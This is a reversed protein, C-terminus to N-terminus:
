STAEAPRTVRGSAIGFGPFVVWIVNEEGELAHEVYRGKSGVPVKEGKRTEFVVKSSVWRGPRRAKEIQVVDEIEIEKVVIGTGEELSMALHELDDAKSQLRDATRSGEFGARGAVDDLIAASKRLDAIDEDSLSLTRGARDKPQSPASAEKRILGGPGFQRIVEDRLDAQGGTSFPQNSM